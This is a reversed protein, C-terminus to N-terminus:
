SIHFAFVPGAYDIMHRIVFSNNLILLFGPSGGYICPLSISCSASSSSDGLPIEASEKEKKNKLNQKIKNVNKKMKKCVSWLKEERKGEGKRRWGGSFKWRGVEQDAGGGNGNLFPCAEWPSSCVM